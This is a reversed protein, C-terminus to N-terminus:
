KNTAATLDELRRELIAQVDYLGRHYYCAGVEESFFDLLFQADFQDIDQELEERFYRQIKETITDKRGQLIQHRGHDQWRIQTPLTLLFALGTCDTNESSPLGPLRM